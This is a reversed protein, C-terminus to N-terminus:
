PAEEGSGAPGTFVTVLPLLSDWGGRTIKILPKQPLTRSCLSSLSKRKVIRGSERVKAGSGDPDRCCAFVKKAAAKDCEVLQKVMELGLGRNAGTILM